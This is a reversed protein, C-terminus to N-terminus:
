KRKLLWAAIELDHPTTVKLNDSSAPVSRVKVGLREALLSDDTAQKAPKSAHAKFILERSFGQPTQAQWLRTRDITKEIVSDKVLKITDTVPAALIAAGHKRAAAIVREIDPVTILPRASDHILIIDTDRSCAALGARVSDAREIGGPIIVRLKPYAAFLFSLDSKYGKPVVLVIEHVKRSSQYAKLSYEALLKGHLKVFAKPTKSKLRAGKGAAAIIASVKM